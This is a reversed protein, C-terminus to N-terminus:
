RKQAPGAPPIRRTLRCKYRRSRAGHTPTAPITQQVVAHDAAPCVAPEPSAPLSIPATLTVTGPGGDTALRTGDLLRM